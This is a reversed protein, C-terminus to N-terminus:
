HSLWVAFKLINLLGRSINAQKCGGCKSFHPYLFDQKTGGVKFDAAAGRPITRQRSNVKPKCTQIAKLEITFAYNVSRQQSRKETQGVTQRHRYLAHMLQSNVSSMKCFSYPTRYFILGIHSLVEPMFKVFHLYITTNKQLSYWSPLALCLLLGGWRILTAVKGQWNSM